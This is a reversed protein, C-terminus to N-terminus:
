QSIQKLYNVGIEFAKKDDIYNEENVEDSSQGLLTKRVKTDAGLKYLETNISKRGFGHLTNRKVGSLAFYKDVRVRLASRSIQVLYDEDQLENRKIYDYLGEVLDNVIAIKKYSSSSKLRETVMGNYLKQRQISVIAIKDKFEIDKIKIGLFEGIRLGSYYLTKLIIKDDIDTISNLLQNLESISTYSNKSEIKKQVGTKLSELAFLCDDKKDSGIIGLKRSYNILDRLTSIILNKRKLGVGATSIFARFLDLNNEDYMKGLDNKFFPRIYHDIMCEKARLTGWSLENERTKYYRSFLDDINKIKLDLSKIDKKKSEIIEYEKSQVYKKNKFEPNNTEKHTFHYYSGDARKIKADIYYTKSKKDLKIAM